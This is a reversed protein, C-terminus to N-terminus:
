PELPGALEPQSRAAISLAAHHAWLEEEERAALTWGGPRYLPLRGTTVAELAARSAGLAEPYRGQQELIRALCDHAFPNDPEAERWSACIKEASAAEVVAATSRAAAHRSWIDDREALVKWAQSLLGAPWQRPLEGDPQTLLRSLARRTLFADRDLLVLTDLVQTVAQVDRALMMADATIALLELGQSDATKLMELFEARAAETPTGPRSMREEFRALLAFPSGPHHQLEREIPLLTDCAGLNVFANRV